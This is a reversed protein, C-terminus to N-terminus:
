RQHAGEPAQFSDGAKRVHLYCACAIPTLDWSPITLSLLPTLQSFCMSGGVVKRLHARTGDDMQIVAPRGTAIELLVVGFSYVDAKHSWLGLSFVEPDLYGQSPAPPHTASAHTPM